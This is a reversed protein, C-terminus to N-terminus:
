PGRQDLATMTARGIQLPGTLGPGGQPQQPEVGPRAPQQAAAIYQMHSSSLSNDIPVGYVVSLAVRKTYPLTAQIRPAAEFLARQAIAFLEPYVMRLVEAGETSVHGKALDELVSAPDGVAHMYRGWEELQATSPHWAGDAPLLSQVMSPKPSKSDLFAIGRQVQAVITAQLYPDSTQVRDGIAHEIAGPQQARAIEDMRAHYLEIPGKGKPEEGGPFLKYGLTVAPGAAVESLKKAGKASGTLIAQTAANIRDQVAAAKAAIVSETSRGISGGKRGIIGLAARAKLVAGLVPGIVPIASVAPVHVGLAQLVELATGLDAAKGLLGSARATPAVSSAAGAADPQLAPQAANAPPAPSTVPEGARAGAAKMEHKRLAKDVGSEVVTADGGAMGPIVKDKIDQAARAASTGAADAQGALAARYAQARQVATAPAHQGLLEAVDASDAEHDGIAKAAKKLDGAINKNKGNHKALAREIAADDAVSGMQARIDRDVITKAIDPVDADPGRKLGMSGLDELSGPRTEAVATSESVPGVATPRRGVRTAPEGTPALAELDAPTRQAAAEVAAMDSRAYNAANARARFHEANEATKVAKAARYEAAVPRGVATFHEGRDLASKTGRLLAELDPETQSPGPSALRVRGVRIDRGDVHENRVSLVEFRSRRPLLMEAESMNEDPIAAYKSGAPMEIELLVPDPKHKAYGLGISRETSVSSYGPDEIISGPKLEGVIGREAGRSGEGIGRYVVKSEAITQRAAARDLAAITREAEEVSAFPSGEYLKGTRAFDNIAIYRGGKYDHLAAGEAETSLGYRGANRAATVDPPSAPPEQGGGRLVRTAGPETPARAAPSEAALAPSEIGAEAAAREVESASKIGRAGPAGFEGVPVSGPRAEPALDELTGTQIHDWAQQPKMEAIQESTFGLDVLQQKMQRTVMLPVRVPQPALRPDPVQPAPIGFGEDARARPALAGLDPEGLADALSPAHATVAPAQLGALARELEPDAEAAVWEKLAQQSTELRGLAERLQANQAGSAAQDGLAVPDAGGFVRRTLQEKAAGAGAQAENLAIQKRATAAMQEGDALSSQLSSIADQKVAAAAEPTVQARPFLSKARILAAESLTLAGGVPAAFLAGKGMGAVFGEASLPKNELAVQSLYQGGGYLAGEAGAGAASAITRGILGAGEGEAAVARGVRSAVGAPTAAGGTILSPALTGAIESAASTYPNETRLGELTQAADEGGVLRAAVDSLGLTAGRALGAGVAGIVGRAGGYDVQSAATGSRRSVDAETEPHWGQSLANAVDKEDVNRLKGETDILQPM